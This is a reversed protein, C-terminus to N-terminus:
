LELNEPNDIEDTKTASGIFLTIFVALSLWVTLFIQVNTM